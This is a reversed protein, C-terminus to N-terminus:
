EGVADVFREALPGVVEYRESGTAARKRGDTIGFVREDLDESGITM